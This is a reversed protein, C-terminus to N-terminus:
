ADRDAWRLLAAFGAVAGVVVGVIVGFAILPRLSFDRPGVAVWAILLALLLVGLRGRSTKM